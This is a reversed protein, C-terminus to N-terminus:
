ELTANPAHWAAYILPWWCSLASGFISLTRIRLASPLLDFVVWPLASVDISQFDGLATASEWQGSRMEAVWAKITNNYAPSGALLGAVETQGVFRM